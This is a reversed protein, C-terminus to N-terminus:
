QASNIVLLANRDHQVEARLWLFSPKLRHLLIAISRTAFHCTAWAILLFIRFKFKPLLLPYLFLCQIPTFNIHPKLCPFGNHSALLLGIDLDNDIVIPKICVAVVGSSYTWDIVSSPRKSSIKGGQYKASTSTQIIATQWKHTPAWIVETPEVKQALRKIKSENNPLHNGQPPSHPPRSRRSLDAGLPSRSQVRGLIYPCGSPLLKMRIISPLKLNHLIALLYATTRMQIRNLTRAQSWIMCWAHAGATLHFSWIVNVAHLTSTDEWPKCFMSLKTLRKINFRMRATQALIQCKSSIDQSLAEYSAMGISALTCITDYSYSWLLATQKDHLVLENHSTMNELCIMVCVGGFSMSSAALWACKKKNMMVSFQGDGVM